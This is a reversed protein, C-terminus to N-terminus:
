DVVGLVPEEFKRQIWRANLKMTPLGNHLFQMDLYAVNRDGYKVHFKGSDTFTGIVTAEVDRTKALNLFEDMKEPSVALTMREQSESVLIEWPDLGPYKLPCKDLE